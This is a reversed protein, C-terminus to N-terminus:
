LYKKEYIGNYKYTMTQWINRLANKHQLQKWNNVIIFLTEVVYISNKTRLKKGEVLRLVVCTFFFFHIHIVTYSM